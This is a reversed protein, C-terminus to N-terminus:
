VNNENQPQNKYIDIVYKSDVIDPFTQVDSNFKKKFKRIVSKLVIPSDQQIKEYEKLAWNTFIPCSQRENRSMSLQLTITRYFSGYQRSIAYHQSAKQESNYFKKISQISTSLLGIAGVSIALINKTHENHFSSTVLSLSSAFATIIISFIAMCDAFINWKISSEFHLYKLGAAKEGWKKMLIEINYNWNIANIGGINSNNDNINDISINSNDCNLNNNNTCWMQDHDAIKFIRTRCKSCPTTEKNNNNNNNNNNM